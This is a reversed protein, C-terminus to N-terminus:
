RAGPESDGELFRDVIEVVREEQGPLPYHSIGDLIVFRADPIGRALQEGGTVPIGKDGQYHIVLCPVTVQDLVASVDAAYLQDLLQAALESSTVKKQFRAWADRQEASGGPFLMQALVDSGVGWSARVLSIISGAAAKSFTEPGSAYTAFLILHSILEPAEVAVQIGIPGAGSAAWVPVPTETTARLLTKLEEVSSRFSTTLPEGKSLGTGFRDFIVLEHTRALAAWFPTRMDLGASILDLASLWGPHIFLQPGSGVKGVAVREGAGRDVYSVSLDMTITPRSEWEPPDVEDVLISLELERIAVSPELGTEEALSAEYDRFARLAEPKRGSAALARMYLGLLGEDFPETQVALKLKEAAEDVRGHDVLLSYWDQSARRHRQRLREIALAVTPHNEFTRFPDGAWLRLASEFDELRQSARATDLARDFSESDVRDPYIAYGTATTVLDSGVVSRLRSVANHLASEPDKPLDDGWVEEILRGTTVSDPRAALLVALVGAQRGVPHHERGDDGEVMLDGFVRYENGM